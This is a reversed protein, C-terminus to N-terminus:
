AVLSQDGRGRAVKMDMGDREGHGGGRGIRQGGTAATARHDIGRRLGAALFQLLQLLGM